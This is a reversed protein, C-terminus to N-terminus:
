ELMLNRFNTITDASINCGTTAFNYFKDAVTNGSYAKLAEVMGVYDYTNVEKTTTRLRGFGINSFSSLEYEKALDSESVGLLGLLQFALTGTRDCGGQCHMYIPKSATLQEVIWELVEKFQARYTEGTFAIAYNTYGIKKYVCNSAISTETDTAGLNLEAQIALEGLSRRGKGTLLLEPLSSDNLAAGRIIKGYKVKKDNLGTWGGLDRVNQTGDICLLRWAESSTTFSGSKAEVLSGDAMVHTVKYYYTKNPLLNYIPFKNLGTADYTRLTHANVTGIARTDVAVTTRMASENYSWKVTYPVPIDARCPYTIKELHSYSYDSDSYAATNYFDLVPKPLLKITSPSNGENNLASIKAATEADLGGSGYQIGTDVWQESTVEATYEIKIDSNAVNTTQTTDRVSVRVYRVTQYEQATTNYATKPLEWTVIANGAEWVVNSGWVGNSLGGHSDCHAIINKNADYVVVNNYTGKASEPIWPLGGFKIKITGTYEGIDIWPTTLCNTYAIYEGNSSLRGPLYPNEHSEDTTNEFTKTLTQTSTSNKYVWITGTSNLIYQKSTDVMEDVSDVIPASFGGSAIFNDIKGSLTNLRTGTENADAAAGSVTLTSDVAPINEALKTAFEAETGTYGGEVAYAYASKGDAGDKGPSGDAGPNGDAGDKGNTVTATTTGNKDTITITAGNDNQTVNATPSYGDTGNEGPQGDAGDFEGSEKAQALATNIANTLEAADLKDNRLADILTKIVVGQAASLPKNAVNTVLDNVIDAVSVKDTTISDILSKNSKIYAVVESLQDLTTDDSDALANLRDTLGQILMRIDSHTDTGTNHAAVKSESATVIEDSLASLRGGVEAADAAQGSHTLTSDVAPIDETKALTKASSDYKGTGGVKVEGAFWANGYWDLTHANSRKDDDTGNGVIHAYEGDITSDEVNYRGQVHQCKGKAITKKGESHSEDGIAKTNEGESHAYYGSAEGLSGEAHSYHGTAKNESGEAHSSTGTAKNGSGEAHSCEGDASNSAGEAHSYEGNATNKTYYDYNATCNEITSNTGSGPAIPLELFKSDIKKIQSIGAEVKVVCDTSKTHFSPITELSFLFPEGTDEEGAYSTLSQNGIWQGQRVCEYVTGDFTVKVSDGTNIIKKGDSSITFDNIFQGNVDAPTSIEPSYIHTLNSFQTEPMLIVSDIKEYFPRNKVFDAYSDDNQEWDAQVNVEAGEAISALKTKEETTYDETSLGKGDISDVKSDVEAQITEFKTNIVKNQVPNTSTASLTSDVITKNAGVEIGALKEKEEDTYDNSSLGKGSEAPVFKNLRALIQNWFYALGTENLFAM